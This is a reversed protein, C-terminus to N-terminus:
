SRKSAGRADDPGDGAEVPGVQCRCVLHGIAARHHNHSDSIRASRRRCCTDGDIAPLEDTATNERNEDMQSRIRM